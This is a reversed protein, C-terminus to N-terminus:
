QKGKTPRPLRTAAIVIAEKVETDWLPGEAKTMVRGLTSAVTKWSVGLSGAATAILAAATSPGNPAYKVVAYAIGAIAAAFVLIVYWWSAMYNGVLGLFRKTVRDGAKKYDAASLLDVAPKEGCLLRRWLEGQYHLSRTFGKHVNVPVVGKNGEVWDEWQKLSGSVADSAHDPLLSHLDDLWGYANGLREHKFEETLTEPMKPNALLVTDALMRGLDLGTVLHADQTALERRLERHITLLTRMTSDGDGDPSVISALDSDSPLTFSFAQKLINVDHQIEAVVTQGQEYPGLESEGQLHKPLKEDPTEPQNPPPDHYVTAMRWGLRILVELNASGEVVSNASVSM